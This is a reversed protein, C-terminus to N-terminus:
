QALKKRYGVPYPFPIPILPLLYVNGLFGLTLGQSQSILPDGTVRGWRSTHSSLHTTTWDLGTTPLTKQFCSVFACAGPCLVITSRRSPECVRNVGLCCLYTATTQVKPGILPSGHPVLDSKLGTLSSEM